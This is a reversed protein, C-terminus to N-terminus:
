TGKEPKSQSFLREQIATAAKDYDTPFDLRTSMGYSALTVPGRWAAHLSCRGQSPLQM